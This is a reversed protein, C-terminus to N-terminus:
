EVLDLQEISVFPCPYPHTRSTCICICIDRSPRLSPGPIRFLLYTEYCGHLLLMRGWLLSQLTEAMPWFITDQFHKIDELSTGPM